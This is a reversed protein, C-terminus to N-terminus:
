KSLKKFAKEQYLYAAQRIKNDKFRLPHKAIYAIGQEGFRDIIPKVLWYGGYYPWSDMLWAFGGDGTPLWEASTTTDSGLLRGFYEGVGETLIKDALNQDGTQNRWASTDPWIRRHTRYSIQDALAHGLEHDILMRATESLPNTDGAFGPASFPILTRYASTVWMARISQDYCGGFNATSSIYDPAGFQMRPVWGETFLIGTRYEIVKVRELMAINWQEETSLPKPLPLTTVYLPKSCASLVMVLLLIKKM